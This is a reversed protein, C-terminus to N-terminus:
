NTSDIKSELYNKIISLMQLRRQEDRDRDGDEEILCNLKNLEKVQKYCHSFDHNPKHCYTCNKSSRGRSRSRDRNKFRDISSDHSTRRDHRRDRDRDRSRSDKIQREFRRVLQVLSDMMGEM